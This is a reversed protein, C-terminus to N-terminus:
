KGGRRDMFVGSELGFYKVPFNNNQFYVNDENLITNKKITRLAEKKYTNAAVLSAKIPAAIDKKFSPLFEKKLGAPVFNELEKAFAEYNESLIKYTSIIGKGSGIEIVEKGKTEMEQLTKFKKDYDKQFTKISSFNILNKKAIIKEMDNLKVMAFFDLVRLSIVKREKKAKYYLDSIIKSFLKVKNQNDFKRHINVLNLFDDITQNYYRKSDKNKMAFYEYKSWDKKVFYERMLEYEVEEILAIRVKCKKAETILYETKKVDGQALSIFASNKFATNKKKTKQSCGKELFKQSVDISRDFELSTFLFNAITIFSSSFKVVDTPSMENMAEIAWRHSNEVDGLEYYLAALNYKANIKSRKTSYKDQLIDLYGVLAVKKNGKGLQSQVEEIQLTTLLEQLKNKFKNSALYKGSEIDTVWVRLRDNNKNKRDIDMLKAIMAEQTKDKPYQKAFRDLVSKAKDYNNIALYNNFLRQYIEKAKSGQKWVSLYSEFAYINKAPNNKLRTLTALMGDMSKKLFKAKIKKGFEFSDKYYEYALPYLRASYATEGKLFLYEEKKDKNVKALMDFYSISLMAKETRIKKLRRYQKGVVQRQLIAATKEMQFVYTKIQNSTLVKKKWLDLLSKSTEEHKSYKGFKQFLNLQEIYVESLKKPNKEYKRAQVLVSDARSYKGQAILAVSIRLLQNTFDIGIKKYFEVGESVRNSTAFFLGIDREVQARMDIFKKDYSLKFVEKMKNIANTYQNTRFYCWALNFSDKTWWKDKKERLAKEYLPIAKKYKKENYYVEALSIQTKVKTFRDTSKKNARSFYKAATKLKNAEKANFGLIYYVEGMRKYSPYSRTIKVCLSNAKSFYKNSQGFYRQKNVKNRKKVSLNLFDENETERYLRAKELNLEAMRLILDPDKNNRQVSLKEVEGLEENIIGIIKLRREKLADSDAM